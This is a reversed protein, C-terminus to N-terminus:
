KIFMADGYSFFRYKNAVAYKYAAMTNDYGAFAAVLMLLSSFPLHFNTILQDIARFEYGPYIFIDTEGEHAKFKAYNNYVTELARVVTTGVAIIKNGRAQTTNLINATQPSIYFSETHMKHQRIDGSAVPRFTALGVHLVITVINVGQAEIKTLLERTFHLGATPAAASGTDEAYVTQYSVQDTVDAPRNIYPPLPMRGVQYIFKAEDEVNYFRVLRGGPMELEAVIKAYAASSDFRVIAGKKLRKAPRTIAEWFWGDKKLLLMEVKAGTDKYGYLRAPLVKTKNLVLTDGKNFFQSIASFNADRIKGSGKDLVLLQSSDRPEVPYNAILDPPLFFDYTSLDYLDINEKVM